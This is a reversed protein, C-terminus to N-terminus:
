NTVNKGHDYATLLQHNINFVFSVLVLYITRVSTMKEASGELVNEVKVNTKFRFLFSIVNMCNNEFEKDGKMHKIIHKIDRM